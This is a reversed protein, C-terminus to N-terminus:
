KKHNKLIKKKVQDITYTKTKGSKYAAEREEIIAIDDKSLHYSGQQITNNLLVYVAELVRNDDITEILKKIEKKLTASTMNNLKFSFKTM